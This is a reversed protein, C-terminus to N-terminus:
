PSRPNSPPEPLHVWHEPTFGKSGVNPWNALDWKDGDWGGMLIGWPYGHEDIQSSHLLITQGSKPATEIPQWEM